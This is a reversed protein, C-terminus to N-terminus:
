AIEMVDEKDKLSMDTTDEECNDVTIEENNVDTKEEVKDNVDTKEEVKDSVDTANTHTENSEETIQRSKKKVTKNGNMLSKGKDMKITESKNEKNEDTKEVISEENKDEENNEDQEGDSGESSEGEHASEYDEGQDQKKVYLDFIKDIKEKGETYNKRLLSDLSTDSAAPDENYEIIDLHGVWLDNKRKKQKLDGLCLFSTETERNLEQESLSLNAKQAVKEIFKKLEYYSPVNSHARYKKTLASNIEDYKSKVYHIKDNALGSRPNRGIYQCYKAYVKNLRALYKDVLIYASDSDNDDNLNVEAEDLQKIKNKLLKITKELKKIKPYNDEEVTIAAGDVHTRLFDFVQHFALVTVKAAKTNPSTQINEIVEILIKKFKEGYVHSGCKKFYKELIPVKKPLIEEFTSDVIKEEVLKLFKKFYTRSEEQTIADADSTTTKDMNVPFPEFDNECHNEKETDDDSDPIIISEDKDHSRMSIDAEETTDKHTGNRKRKGNENNRKWCKNDEDNDSRKNAEKDLNKRKKENREIDSDSEILVSVVDGKPRVTIGNKKLLANLPNKVKNKEKPRSDGKGTTGNKSSSESIKYVKNSSEIIEPKEDDSDLVDLVVDPTNRVPTLSIHPLNEVPSIKFRKKQNSSSITEEEDDSSTLSIVDSNPASKKDIPPEAKTRNSSEDTEM